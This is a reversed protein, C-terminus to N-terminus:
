VQRGVLSYILWSFFVVFLTSLTQSSDSVTDTILAYVGPFYRALSLVRVVRCIRVASLNQNSESEDVGEAMWAIVSVTTLVCDFINVKLSLYPKLFMLVTAYTLTVLTGVFIRIVQLHNPILQIWGTIFLRQVLVIPEWYFFPPEFERHLFSTARTLRTGRCTRFSHRLSFLVIVFSVLGLLVFFGVQAEKSGSGKPTSALIDKDTPGNRGTDTDSM